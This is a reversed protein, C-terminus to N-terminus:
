QDFHPAQVLLVVQSSSQFASDRAGGPGVSSSDANYCSVLPDAHVTVKALHTSGEPKM